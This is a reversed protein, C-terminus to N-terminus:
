TLIDQEHLTDEYRFKNLIEIWDQITKVGAEVLEVPSKFNTEELFAEKALKAQIWYPNKKPM